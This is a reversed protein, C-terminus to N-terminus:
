KVGHMMKGLKKAFLLLIVSAVFSSIVFITFFNAMSEEEAISEMFGAIAGGIYNALSSALFWVGFMLGVLKKPSLKSVTSLGVPSLCLEGITHFLYALFLWTMNVDAYRAGKAIGASGVVLMVFGLGLFFLGFSFKVPSNPERNRKGLFVWLMSFLPALTFILFANVSQFWSAPVIFGPQEVDLTAFRYQSGSLIMKPVSKLTAMLDPDLGEKPVINRSSTIYNKIPVVSDGVSVKMTDFAASLEAHNKGKNIKDTVFSMAKKLAVTDSSTTGASKFENIALTDSLFRDTYREAYLNMSSGAQEFSLWFFVSFFALVFVVSIRQKEVGSLPAETEADLADVGAVKKAPKLGVTGLYKQGLLFQILGLCMGIGAAGFGWHWGFNPNEGLYGCTLTGLFAGVNIGMYFITYGADKLKSGDPYLQGVMSSINPQFMGNGCLYFFPLGELALSGHGLAMIIGGLLVSNRFGLYKDAIWGGILPTLYVLGTYIGYLQGADKNDWGLGGRQSEAMLYLMLLARMGYYSFREWMETFFLIYLGAPHREKIEM